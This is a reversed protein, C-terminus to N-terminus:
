RKTEFIFCLKGLSFSKYAEQGRLKPQFGPLSNPFAQALVAPPLSSGQFRAAREARSLTSIEDEFYSLPRGQRSLLM